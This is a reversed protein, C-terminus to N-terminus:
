NNGHKLGDWSHIKEGMGYITALIAPEYDGGTHPRNLLGHPSRPAM